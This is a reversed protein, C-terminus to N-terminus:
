KVPKNSLTGKGMLYERTNKDPRLLIIYCKPFFICALLGASSALIAFIEVAVMYKGRTSLYAPIFSLWVIVFVLMSFTIFKAENFSDPLNRALFAVIFSIIALLGMYGLMCWFAVTSGENCEIIITGPQSKMNQEPFPPSSSLWTICIIVQFLTCVFVISNALKPGVWKKLNSNPKTTNFAIVVMITKALVCSVCLAFIIGFATQRLMCTAVLPQGIFILSCLFCLMLALLLLYSLERNNAKVIPTDHYRIFSCLVAAPILSSFISISALIAGLPEEYSLFEILTLICKDRRDNSWHDEPCELCESSDTQNTIEGESCRICDFCCIPEGRRAAKRYGPPCSESCVSRPVQTHGENWMLASSNIIFEKGPSAGFNIKGVEVYKFNGEPTLQWNIIDYLAPSIGKDDFYVKEGLKNKFNVNKIYHLLQWPEFDHINACTGNEFPGDGPNCAHLDHLAHAVAYVANYVNYTVRSESVDFFSINLEASNESGSCLKTGAGVESTETTQYPKISPWTCGFIEEWFTELYMHQSTFPHLSLLFDRFGPINSKHTAIGIAGTLTRALHRKFLRTSTSSSETAVWTKGTINQRTLEEMLPIIYVDYCIIVIASVSSKKIVEVLHNVRLASYINPITESFSICTDTKSIEDILSQTSSAGFDTDEAIIGVWTWGFHVLLRTISRSRIIGDPITRFFSPFRHRDNLLDSGAFYSIQPYNYVGLLTAMSISTGSAADGIIAALSTRSNCRYNPVPEEQGTIMWMIGELARSELVCSDYIGYGVMLNPLLDSNQNIEDIAFIMAQVWRYPRLRFSLWSLPNKPTLAPYDRSVWSTSFPTGGGRRTRLEIVLLERNDKFQNMVIQLFELTCETKDTRGCSQPEPKEMFLNETVFDKLKVTFIGGIIVDGDKTTGEPKLTPLQCGPQTSEYIASSFLLLLLLISFM